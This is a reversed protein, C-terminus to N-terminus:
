TCFLLVHRLTPADLGWAEGAPQGRPVLSQSRHPTHGGGMLAGKGDRSPARVCRAPCVLLFVGTGQHSQDGPFALVWRVTPTVPGQWSKPELELNHIFGKFTFTFTFDSLRTRSKAIGHVTARWAGGNM